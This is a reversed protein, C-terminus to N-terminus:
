MILVSPQSCILNRSLSFQLPAVYFKNIREVAETIFSNM